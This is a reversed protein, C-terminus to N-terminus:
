YLFSIEGDCMQWEDENQSFILGNGFTVGMKVDIKTCM